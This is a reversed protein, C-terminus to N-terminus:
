APERSTPSLAAYAKLVKKDFSELRVDAHGRQVADFATALAYADPLKLGTRARVTAAQRALARDVPITEISFRQFMAEVVDAGKAGFKQFPGILVETYNVASVLRQTGPELARRMREVAQGHSADERGLFAILVDADFVVLAV